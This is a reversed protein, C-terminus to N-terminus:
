EFQVFNPNSLVGAFAFLPMAPRPSDAGLIRLDMLNEGLGTCTASLIQECVKLILINARNKYEAWAQL